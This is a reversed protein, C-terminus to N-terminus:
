LAASVAELLRDALAGFDSNRRSGKLLVVDGDRVISALYRAMDASNEFHPGLLEAPLVDRLYRMEEGHTVVHTAGSVVVPELLGEHLSKTMDGLHVIRGLAAIKRGALGCSVGALVRLANEMSGVTANFSDDILSFAGVPLAVNKCLMRGEGPCFDAVLPAVEKLSRGMAYLVAMAGVANTVMGQGPVPVWFRVGRENRTAIEVWSGQPSSDVEVIRVDSSEDVGYRVVERGFRRARLFVKEFGRLHDGVIAVGRGALGDYIRSKWRITDDYSRVMKGTQSIGIETILSITPQIRRTVPGKQMWLASQAVEVVAADYHPGLSALLAVSGVRSNYNDFSALVRESGGLLRQLLSVTSSKGNSGTVAIVEGRFRSRAALGLEILAKIPDRVLLQPLHPHADVVHRSVIASSVRDGLAGIMSHRDFNRPGLASGEHACRDKSDHAVFLVPDPVLGVHKGGAVVSRVSFDNPPRVIWTGGTVQVLEDATWTGGGRAVRELLPFVTRYPPVHLSSRNRGQIDLLVRWPLKIPKVAASAGKLGITIQLEGNELFKPSPPRLGYHDRYIQGPQWRSTPMLWDCPDHDMGLGWRPMRGPVVSAATIDLRLDEKVPLDCTWFTEVWLMERRKLHKPSVQVGVLTLPGLAIPDIAFEEPVRAVVWPEAVPVPYIPVSLTSAGDGETGTSRVTRQQIEKSRECAALVSIKATGQDDISAATGLAGSRAVFDASAAHADGDKMQVSFGFGIAVPVFRIESVGGRTVGILFVGGPRSAAGKADFLLDGADYIIPRGRYLEVGQVRHASAGMVLDAGADIVAHGLQQTTSDPEGRHNLGWHVAVAVLDAEARAAAFRQQLSRRSVEISEPDLYATGACDETAAFSKQTTDFSFVAVRVGGVDLVVPSFAADISEGSGVHLIGAMELWQRQALLASRGYDGAHNNATTVVDIKAARLVELMEPRARYYYPGGEGKDEGQQGEHGVVCELNVIRADACESAPVDIVAVTGLEKCRYHQRRGLNVDGGWMLVGDSLGSHMTM